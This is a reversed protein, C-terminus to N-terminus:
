ALLDQAQSAEDLKAMLLRNMEVLAAGVDPIECMVNGLLISDFSGDGRM